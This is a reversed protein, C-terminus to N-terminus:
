SEAELAKTTKSEINSLQKKSSVTQTKTTKVKRNIDKSLSFDATPTHKFVIENVNTPNYGKLWLEKVLDAWKIKVPVWEWYGQWARQGTRYSWNWTWSGSIWSLKMAANKIARSAGSWKKLAGSILEINDENRSVLEEMNSIIQGDWKYLMENMKRAYEDYADWLLERLKEPNRQIFDKNDYFLGIMMENKMAPSLNKADNIRDYTSNIVMATIEGTPDDNKFQHTLSSMVALVREENWEDIARGIQWIQRLVSEYQSKLKVDEVITDDEKSTEINFFKEIDTRWLETSQDYIIKLAALTADDEDLRNLKEFFTINDGDLVSNWMRMLTDRYDAAEMNADTWKLDKKLWKNKIAKQRDMESEILMHANWQWLMKLYLPYNPDTSHEDLWDKSYNYIVNAVYEENSYYQKVNTILKDWNEDVVRKWNKKVFEWHENTEYKMHQLWLEMEADGANWKWKDMHWYDEFQLLSKNFERSWPRYQSHNLITNMFIEAEKNTSPIVYWKDYFEKWAKTQQIIWALDESSFFSKSYEGKRVKNFNKITKFLQSGNVFAKRLNGRYKKKDEWAVDDDAILQMAKWTESNDLAYMFSKDSWIQAEWMAISPIWWVQWSVEYTYWYSNEDENVMYRLSWFSLNFFQKEFYAKLNAREGSEFAWAAEILWNVPKWQRGFNKWLANFFAWVWWTDHYITPDMQSELISNMQEHFPRLPWFSQIGQYWQSVMNMTERVYSLYDLFYYWPDENEDPWRGNDQYRTLKFSWELDHLMATVFNVFEPTNWLYDVLKERAERSLWPMWLTAKYLRWFNEWTQKFINQWWSWRFNLMQMLWYLCNQWGAWGIPRDLWWFGLWLINRFNRGSAAAVADMLRSKVEASVTADDMFALFDEASSFKMYSNDRLWKVFAVNKFNRAFIWDIFNNANDKYPDLWKIWNSMKWPKSYKKDVKAYMNIYDDATTIGTEEYLDKMTPIWYRNYFANKDLSDPNFNLKGTINLENYAWDLVWFSERIADIRWMDEIWLAQEYWIQKLFYAVWQQPITLLQWPYSMLMRFALRSSNAVDLLKNIRRAFWGGALTFWTLWQLVRKFVWDSYNTGFLRNFTERDINNITEVYDRYGGVWELLREDRRHSQKFMKVYSAQWPNSFKFFKLVQNQEIWSLMWFLWRIWWTESAWNAWLNMFTEWIHYFAKNVAESTTVWTKWDASGLMRELNKFYRAANWAVEEAANRPKAKMLSELPMNYFSRYAERVKDYRAWIGASTWMKGYAWMWRLWIIYNKMWRAVEEWMWSVADLADVMKNTLSYKRLDTRVDSMFSVMLEREADSIIQSQNEIAKLTATYQNQINERLRKQEKTLRREVDEDDEWFRWNFKEDVNVEDAWRVLISEDNFITKKWDDIKVNALDSLNKSSWDDMRIMIMKQIDDTDSAWAAKLDKIAQNYAEKITSELKEKIGWEVPLDRLYSYPIFMNTYINKMKWRATEIEQPSFTNLKWLEDIQRSIAKDIMEGLEDEGVYKNKRFWKIIDSFIDNKIDQDITNSALIDTFFNDSALSNNWMVRPLWTNADVAYTTFFSYQALLPTQKYMLQTTYNSTTALAKAAELYRLLVYAQKNTLNEIWERGLALIGAYWEISSPMNNLTQWLTEKVDYVVYEWNIEKITSWNSILQNRRREIRNITAEDLDNANYWKAIAVNIDNDSALQSMTNQYSWKHIIREWNPWVEERWLIRNAWNDLMKEVERANQWWVAIPATYKIWLLSQREEPTLFKSYKPLIIEQEFTDMAYSFDQKLKQADKFTFKSNRVWEKMAKVYKDITGKLVQYEAWWLSEWARAWEIASLATYTDPLFQNERKIVRSVDWQLSEDALKNEFTTFDFSFERPLAWEVIANLNDSTMAINNKYMFARAFDSNLDLKGNLYDYMATKANILPLDYWEKVLNEVFQISLSDYVDWNIQRVFMDLEKDTVEQEPFFMEKYRRKLADKDKFLTKLDELSLSAPQVWNVLSIIKWEASLLQSMDEATNYNFWAERILEINENWKIPWWNVLVWLKDKIQKELDDESLANIENRVNGINVIDRDFNGTTLRELALQKDIRRYLSAKDTFSDFTQIDIWLMESLKTEVNRVYLPDTSDLGLMKWFYNVAADNLEKNYKALATEPNIPKWDDPLYKMNVMDEFMQKVEARHNDLIWLQRAIEKFYELVQAVLSKQEKNLGKKKIKWEKSLLEEAEKKLKEWYTFEWTRFWDAFSDALIEEAKYESVWFLESSERLVREYMDSDQGKVYMNFIWHFLEHPPTSEKVIDTFYIVGNWYAWYAKIWQILDTNHIYEVPFWYWNAIDAVTRDKTFMQVKLADTAPMDAQDSYQWLRRQLTMDLNDSPTLNNVFKYQNEEFAIYHVTWDWLWMWKFKSAVTPDIIWDYWLDKLILRAIDNSVLNGTDDVVSDWLAMGLRKKFAEIEIWWEDLSEYVIQMIEREDRDTLAYKMRASDLITDQLYAIDEDLEDFIITKGVVAPNKMKVYVTLMAPENELEQRAIKEADERSLWENELIDARKSIKWELDPWWWEYNSHVDLKNNSSYYGAWWDWEPNAKTSDFKTFPWNATGHYLEAIGDKLEWDEWTKAGDFYEVQQDTLKNWDLSQWKKNYTVEEREMFHMNPDATPLRNDVTKAQNSNFIVYDDVLEQELISWRPWTDRINKFIIWDYNAWRANQMLVYRVVSDTDFRTLKDVKLYDWWYEFLENTDDLSYSVIHRQWFKTNDWKYIFHYYGDGDEELVYNFLKLDENLEDLHNAIKVNKSWKKKIKNYEKAFTKRINEDEMRLWAEWKWDVIYPNRIDLYCEIVNWDEEVWIDTYTLANEKSSTFYIANVDWFKYEWFRSDWVRSDFIKFGPKTTWHFASKLNWNEDRMESHVKSFHEVQQDSIQRGLSDVWWDNYSAQYRLRDWNRGTAAEYASAIIERTPKAEWLSQISITWAVNDYVGDDITKFFLNDWERIFSSMQGGKPYLITLDWEKRLKDVAERLLQNDWWRADNVVLFGWKLNTKIENALKEVNEQSYQWDKTFDWAIDWEVRLKNKDAILDYLRAKSDSLEDKTYLARRYDFYWVKAWDPVEMGTLARFFVWRVNTVKSWEKGKKFLNIIWQRALDNNWLLKQTAISLISTDSFNRSNLLKIINEDWTINYILQVVDQPKVEQWAIKIVIDEEWFIDESFKEAINQLDNLIREWDRETVKYGLNKMSRYARNDLMVDSLTMGEEAFLSTNILTKVKDANEETLRIWASLQILKDRYLERLIWNNCLQETNTFARAILTDLNTCKVIWEETLDWALNEWEKALISIVEDAMEWWALLERAMIYNTWLKGAKEPENWFVKKIAAWESDLKSFGTPNWGEKIKDMALKYDKKLAEKIDEKEKTLTKITLDNEKKIKRFEKDTIIGKDLRVKADKTSQKADKIKKSADSLTDEIANYARYISYDSAIYDAIADEMQKMAESTNLTSDWLRAVEKIDVDSGGRIMELLKVWWYLSDKTKSMQKAVEMLAEEWAQWKLIYSQVIADIKIEASKAMLELSNVGRWALDKGGEWLKAITTQAYNKTAALEAIEKALDDNWALLQIAVINSIKDCDQVAM